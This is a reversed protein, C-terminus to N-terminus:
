ERFSEPASIQGANSPLSGIGFMFNIDPLAPMAVPTSFKYAGLPVYNLDRLKILANKQESTLTKNIAAFRLAYLASLQGDLEGYRQILSYVKNKDIAGGSMAKRLETSVETRIRAIEALAPRQKDIIGTILSKQEDRLIELFAQGNKETTSTSIFYAPNNLAPYDKLFFSGFYTGHREPCFYVDAELSGKYWSFMESAYTMVATFQDNTLGKKMAQDEPVDPWTSYDNFEMKSLYAKQDDTLSQIIKGVVVARNYSLDADIRYLGSTYKSVTSTSLGTSSPPIGGESYRRFANTLLFRNYAFNEYLSAQEKALAVLKAKQAEDLIHLINNAARSLFAANHGYGAVDVDRMYQFGFYDAVKGPPFFTDAGASGTVFSLGSFAITSLQAKDSMAQALSYLATSTPAKESPQEDEPPQEDDYYYVEGIRIKALDSDAIGLGLYRMIQYAASGDAMYIARCKTPDIYWAEGHQQIQLLIQGRFRDGLSHPVCASPSQKMEDTSSVHPIKALNADTIGQGFIRMMDYAAAGDKMYYRLLNHPRIYWAEGHAQVQLLIRGSLKPIEKLSFAKVSGPAALLFISLVSVLFYGIIKM